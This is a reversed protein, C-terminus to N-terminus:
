VNSTTVTNDRCTKSRQTRRTVRPVLPKERTLRSNETNASPRRMKLRLGRTVISKLSVPFRALITEPVWPLTANIEKTSIHTEVPAGM